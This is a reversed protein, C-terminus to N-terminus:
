QNEKKLIEIFHYVIKATLGWIVRNSQYVYFLENMQRTRWDYNEGNHILEFPFDKEPMVKFDIKYRKPENELFYALPVTFVEAVEQQNIQIDAINKLTGVFPYIIGAMDSVLYDLPIVDTVAEMTVGLEESTERVASEMQHKDEEEVRGGPFCIDGPQSRMKSSRVEFLIHTAGDVEVMPLLVAYERYKKRNLIDAKRGQLKSYVDRVHMTGGGTVMLEIICVKEYFSCHNM